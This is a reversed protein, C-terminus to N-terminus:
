RRAAAYAQAVRGERLYQSARQAMARLFSTAHESQRLRAVQAAVEEVLRTVGAREARVECLIVTADHAPVLGTARVDRGQASALRQGSRLDRVDYDAQPDPFLWPAFAAEVEVDEDSVNNLIAIVNVGDTLTFAEIAERPPAEQLYRAVVRMDGAASEDDLHLQGGPYTDGSHCWVGILQEPLDDPPLLRVYYVSGVPARRDVIVEHWSNDTLEEPAVELRGVEEGGPGGVLVQITISRTRVRTTYTPTCVSLSHLFPETTSITQGVSEHGYLDQPFDHGDTIDHKLARYLPRRTLARLHLPIRQDGPRRVPSLLRVAAKVPDRAPTLDLVRGKGSAGAPGQGGGGFLSRGLTAQGGLRGHPGACILTGGDRVYRRLAQAAEDSVYRNGFSLIWDYDEARGRRLQADTLVAKPIQNRVCALHLARWEPQFGLLSWTPHALYMAIRPRVPWANDFRSELEHWETLLNRIAEEAPTGRVGWEGDPLSGRWQIFGLHWAGTGVSEWFYRRAAEPTYSTGGGRARPNTLRYALRVPALPKGLTNVSEMYMMNYLDSDDDSMIQGMEFGDSVSAYLDLDAGMEAYSMGHFLSGHNCTLVFRTPDGSKTADFHWQFREAMAQFRFDFWDLTRRDQGPSEPPKADDFGALRTGWAENLAAVTPYEQKLWERFHALANEQYDTWRGKFAYTAYLAEGGMVWSLIPRERRLRGVVARIYRQTGNVIVPHDIAPWPVKRDFMGALLPQGRQDLMAVDPFREYFWDPYHPFFGNNWNGVSYAARMGLGALTDFLSRSLEIPVHDASRGVTEAQRGDAYFLRMEFDLDERARRSVYARGEPYQDGRRAWWGIRNGTPESLEVYLMGAPHPGFDLRTWANDAIGAFARSALPQGLRAFDVEGDPVAYVSITCGSEGTTYTPTTVAVGVVEGDARLTQGLTRNGILTEPDRMGVGYPADEDQVPNWMSGTGVANAGSERMLRLQRETDAFSFGVYECPRLCRDQYLPDLATPRLRAM